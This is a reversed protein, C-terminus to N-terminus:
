QLRRLKELATLLFDGGPGYEASEYNFPVAMGPYDLRNGIHHQLENGIDSDFLRQVVEIATEGWENEYHGLKPLIIDELVEYEHIIPPDNSNHWQTGFHEAVSKGDTFYAPVRLPANPDEEWYSPPTGHYLITGAPITHTLLGEKDEWEERWSSKMLDWAIDFATM